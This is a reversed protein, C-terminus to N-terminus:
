YVGETTLIGYWSFDIYIEPNLIIKRNRLSKRLNSQRLFLQKM